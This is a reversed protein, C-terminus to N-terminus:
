DDADGFDLADDFLDDSDTGDESNEGGESSSSFIILGLATALFGLHGFARFITDYSDDANGYIVSLADRFDFSADQLVYTWLIYLILFFFGMILCVKRTMSM